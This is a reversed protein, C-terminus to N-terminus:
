FQILKRNDDSLTYDRPDFAEDYVVAVYKYAIRDFVDSVRHWFNLNRRPNVMFEARGILEAEELWGGNIWAEDPIFGALAPLRYLEMVGSLCPGRGENVIKLYVTDGIISLSGGAKSIRLYPTALEAPPEPAELGEYVPTEVTPEEGGGGEIPPKDPKPSSVDPEKLESPLLTLIDPYYRYLLYATLGLGAIGILFKRRSKRPKGEDSSM